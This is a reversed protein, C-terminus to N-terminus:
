FDLALHLDARKTAPYPDVDVGSSFGTGFNSVEPDYSKYKTITLYNNFSVGIRIGKVYSTPLRPVTYYLGIERLRLYSSTQVFEHADTGVQMIRYVGDPVGLKNTVQDYDASTGGFDNELSTLNVNQGGKKWHFLFRLSVSNFFTIENYTNMQFGPEADGLKSVGGTGDLGLIQTASKGQQIQFSGLVYGFSGQPVSPITLKTVLSRNLWFNVSTNWVINKTQVPRANLGLEVGRNRLNGANVWSTTFGSSAPLSAQMLFDDIVKDYYTLVFGLRDHLVSFDVGTEFEQQREPKINAQGEQPNVIVGPNGTINSIGLATFKSGYAPVNNAQGYAARLKINTFFGDPVIGSKTLNWSIGGKPYVYYKSVDGNNSSRDFRVGGTLTVADNINAEEQLFIGNNQYKTRLQTANLAGAQDVNSQGSILQTAVNLLNSYDGTEGTLGASTTFALRDSATWTNVLSLIFNSNLNNTNGQVSTGKNVAQFQLAAPFLATTQLNYFDIGGVGVLRTSSRDSRQLLADLNVGTIFRNVSENNTMLALTQLPNSAAFPNNPYNGEADPHLQAFSPTSSLAIGLTVGANDNGQLGRDSSSNIYTTTVGLKINDTLRHDVNLRLSSNRYGTNKVIGGEDKQAASFYVGTKATGGSVSLVTNRAFGTNGYVEKEYDYIQHNAQATTFERALMASTTSDSSLSAAREATFQRVGLLKRVKISGLDQAITVRTRGEKGKKTTIVIVGAAAKSGYVAAASAGKLIEINEIDEPRLDAIRSSPNDQNSTPSGGAAAGTIVNIGSSTATNDVFVGDIVYLPQTNGYVSTVGRLKVSIGGGPSGSNANIYAGTVKGELAGDFTQAPAVGNLEKSSITSVANALNRRKITTALGTVVVEDLHTIDEQLQIHLDTTATLQSADITKTMYGTASIVLGTKPSVSIRFKGDADTSTGRTSAQILVSAAVVPHGAADTVTGNIPTNQSFAKEPLTALCALGAFFLLLYRM